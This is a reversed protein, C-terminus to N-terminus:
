PGLGRVRALQAVGRRLPRLLGRPPIYSFAGNRLIRFSCARICGSAFLVVSPYLFPRTEWKTPKLM